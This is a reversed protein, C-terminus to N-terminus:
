LSERLIDESSGRIDQLSPFDEKWAGALSDVLEAWPDSAGARATQRLNVCKAHLAEAFSLVESAQAPPLSKVLEYIQEAISM